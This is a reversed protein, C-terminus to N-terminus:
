IELPIFVIHERSTLIELRKLFKKNFNSRKNLYAGILKCNDPLNPYINKFKTIQYLYNFYENNKYLLYFSRQNFMNELEKNLEIIEIVDIKNFYLTNNMINNIILSTKKNFENFFIYKEKLENIIKKYFDMYYMNWIINQIDIPLNDMSM